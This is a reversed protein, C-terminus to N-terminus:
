CEPLTFPNQIRLGHMVMGNQMDESMLTRAGSVVAAAVIHSDYFSLRHQQAIQVAQAHTDVTLPVITCNAKVAALLEHIEDWPMKIKRHCVSTIENLVQVSINPKQNLLKEAIDAKHENSSLLYLIVNSDLFIDSM